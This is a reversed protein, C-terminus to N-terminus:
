NQGLLKAGAPLGTASAVDSPLGVAVSALSTMDAAMSTISKANTTQANKWGGNKAAALAAPTEYRELTKNDGKGWAVMTPDTKATRENFLNGNITLNWTDVARNTKGDLAYIQFYGGNGFVNNSIQINKTVWPVTPDVKNAYRSDRAQSFQGLKSQLRDDQALKIGFLSSGGVENNFVKFNGANFLIIGDEGGNIAQNNAIIGKDSVEVEIGHKGNGNATNNVINLNYSSVDFWIGSGENNNSADVNKVTMTRAATIKIGGSVPADKFHEANNNSVISNSITSNDTQHGAIGVQGARQITVRDILKNNNTMSLGITAVDQIIVNRVTGGASGIRVAGAKEYPNAYRRVGVGQLVSGPGSLNIAQALDSARVDKGGPDTGITITNAADNVAFQGPGVASASGVQKLATGNVFVMDPDAAMPNTGIFRAKFAADGGMSAGFEATWGSTVWVSGSKTWNSIQKSGDFWVVEGPYNQITVVKNSAVTVSEHYTGGRLVITKGSSAKSVAANVTKVPSAQTGSNSDSGSPSVFIAGSPIAYNTSGLAAAGRNGAPAPAPAPVTQTPTPAPSTTTPAATPTATPTVTPTPTPSTTATATPAPAPAPASVGSAGVSLDDRSVTMKANASQVFDRVAVAGKSQLRASSSDTYTAQWGPKTSGVAWVRARLTVPSSGTIQFEGSFRTGARLTTPLTVGTLWTTSGGNQRSLGLSSKGGSSFRVRAEYGSGDGQLRAAWGHLVDYSSGGTIVATDSVDVDAASVGPLTASFQHGATMAAVGAGGATSVATSPASVHLCRRPRRHGLQGTVSRGYSDRAVEVWGSPVAASGQLAVGAVVGVTAVAATATVTNKLWRPRQRRLPRLSLPM